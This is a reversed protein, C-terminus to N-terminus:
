FKSISGENPIRRPLRRRISSNPCRNHIATTSLHVVQYGPPQFRIRECHILSSASVMGILTHRDPSEIQTLSFGGGVGLSFATRDFCFCPLNFSVWTPAQLKMEDFKCNKSEVLSRLSFHCLKRKKSSRGSYLRQHLM